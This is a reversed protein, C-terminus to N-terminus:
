KDIVGAQCGVTIVEKEGSACTKYRVMSVVGANMGQVTVLDDEGFTHSFNWKLAGDDEPAIAVDQEVPRWNVWTDMSYTCGEEAKIGKEGLYWYHIPKGVSHPRRAPIDDLNKPPEETNLDAVVGRGETCHEFLLDQDTEVFPNIGVPNTDERGKGDYITFYMDSVSLRCKKEDIKLYLRGQLKNGLNNNNLVFQDWKETNKFKKVTEKAAKIEANLEDDTLKKVGLKKLAKKTCSGVENVLLAQCWDQAREKEACYMEADGGEGTPASCEYDYVDSVSMVTYKAVLEGDTKVFRMRAQVNERYSADPLAELMAFSKGDLTDFSLDCAEADPTESTEGGCGLLVTAVLFLVNM